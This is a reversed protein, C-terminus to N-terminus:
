KVFGQIVGLSAWATKDESPYKYKFQKSNADLFIVTKEDGSRSRIRVRAGKHANIYREREQFLQLAAEQLAQQSNKLMTESHIHLKVM